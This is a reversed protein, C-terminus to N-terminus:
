ADKLLTVARFPSVALGLVVVQGAEERAQLPKIVGGEMALGGAVVYAHALPGKVHGSAVSFRDDPVLDEDSAPLSVLHDRLTKVCRLRRSSALTVVAGMRANRASPLRQRDESSTREM